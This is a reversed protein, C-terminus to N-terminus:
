APEPAFIEDKRTAVILGFTILADVGAVTRPDQLDVYDAALLRDYWLKIAASSLTATVVDLQEQETFKDLFDLSSYIRKPPPMTLWTPDPLEGLTDIVVATGDATYYQGRHDVMQVWSGDIFCRVSGEILEPPALETAYHPLLFVGPELPSEDAQSENIYAGNVKDFHYINM